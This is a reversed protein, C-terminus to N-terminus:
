SASGLERGQDIIRVRKAPTGTTPGGRGAVQSLAGGSGVNGTPYQKRVSQREAIRQQRFGEVSREVGSALERALSPIIALDDDLVKLGM